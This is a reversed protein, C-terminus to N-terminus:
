LENDCAFLSALVDRAFEAVEIADAFSSDNVEAFDNLAYLIDEALATFDSDNCFFISASLDKASTLDADVLVTFDILM